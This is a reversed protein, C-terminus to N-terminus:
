VGTRAFPSFEKEVITHAVKRDEVFTTDIDMSEGDPDFPQQNPEALEWTMSVDAGKVKVRLRWYFEYVDGEYSGLGKQGVFGFDALDGIPVVLPPGWAEVGEILASEGTKGTRIRGHKAIDLETYYVQITLERQEVPIISYQWSDHLTEQDQDTQDQQPIIPLWREFVVGDDCFDDEGILQPTAVADTHINANFIEVQAVGFSAKPNLGRPQIDVWRLLAGNSVPRTM